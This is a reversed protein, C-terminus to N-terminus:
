EMMEPPLPLLCSRELSRRVEPPALDPPLGLGYEAALFQRLAVRRERDSWVRMAEIGQRRAHSRIQQQTRAHAAFPDTQM